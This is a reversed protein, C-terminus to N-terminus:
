VKRDALFYDLLERVGSRLDRRREFGLDDLTSRGLPIPVLAEAPADVSVALGASQGEDVVCQALGSLTAWEGLVNVPRYGPGEMQSCLILASVADEVHLLSLAGSGANLRLTEGRRAQLAFRNPVTMFSPDRKMVPSLGYVIALRAAIAKVPREPARAVYLELLKEAYIKSLHSLDRQPGYPTGEDFTAPLPQGLVRLSSGFVITGIGRAWCEDFVVRPGRLNSTETREAPVAADNASSQGALLFVSDVTAADFARAVDQASAVDGEVLTFAGHRRLADLAKPDTSSLDDFGVVEHGVTLLSAALASGLYGVGLILVSL